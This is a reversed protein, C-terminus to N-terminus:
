WAMGLGQLGTITLMKKGIASVRAFRQSGM